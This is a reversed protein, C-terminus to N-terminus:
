RLPRALNEIPLVATGANNELSNTPKWAADAISGDSAISSYLCQKQSYVGAAGGGLNGWSISTGNYAKMDM